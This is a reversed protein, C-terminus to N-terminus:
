VAMLFRLPDPLMGINAQAYCVFRDPRRDGSPEWGYVRMVGEWNMSIQLPRPAVHWPAAAPEFQRTEDDRQSSPDTIQEPPLVLLVREPDHHALAAQLEQWEAADLFEAARFAAPIHTRDYTFRAEVQWARKEDLLTQVIGPLDAKNSRYAMMNYRLKPPSPAAAFAALLADWNEQFIRHRAGQRMREYVAPDFSEISINIHHMGSDALAAFYSEPMRKALNTTYFLKDRYQRPVRDIFDLLKPHLSPEHLCSLWFNAPGVYPLLRLAADFIADSMFKTRKTDTYDVICFPCRLNCNNVIDMAVHAIPWFASRLAPALELAAHGAVRVSVLDREAETLPVDWTIYFGHQGDGIGITVLHKSFRDAVGRHLVRPGAADELVVEIEVRYGPRDLDRVWGAVHRTSREDVYGQFSGRDGSWPQFRTELQPALALARGGEPVVAVRDREEVSLPAAFTVHFAHAGDGVGVAVLTQSFREAVGRHLVRGDLMVAFGIRASPDDLDRVWGAVHHTSRADVFGQLRRGPRKLGHAAATEATRRLLRKILM